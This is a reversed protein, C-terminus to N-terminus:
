QTEQTRAIAADLMPVVQHRLCFAIEISGHHELLDAARKVVLRATEATEREIVIHDSTPPSAAPLAYKAGTVAASALLDALDPWPVCACRCDVWDEHRIGRDDDWLHTYGKGSTDAYRHRPCECTAMPTGPDPM